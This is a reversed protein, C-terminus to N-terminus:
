SMGPTEQMRSPVYPKKECLNMQVLHPVCPITMYDRGSLSIVQCSKIVFRGKLCKFENEGPTGDGDRKALIFKSMTIEYPDRIVKHRLQGPNMPDDEMEVEDVLKAKIFKLEGPKYSSKKNDTKKEGEKPVPEFKAPESMKIFHVTKGANTGDKPQFVGCYFPEPVRFTIKYMSEVPEPETYEKGRANLLAKQKDWDVKAATCKTKRYEAYLPEILANYLESRKGESDIEHIQYYVFNRAATCLKYFATHDPNAFKAKPDSPNKGVDNREDEISISIDRSDFTAKGTPPKYLLKINFNEFIFDFPRHDHSTPNKPDFSESVDILVEFTKRKLDIDAIKLREMIEQFGKSEQASTIFNYKSIDSIRVVRDVVPTKAAM